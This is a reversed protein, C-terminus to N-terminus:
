KKSFKKKKKKDNDNNVKEVVNKRINYRLKKAKKVNQSVQNLMGESLSFKKSMDM